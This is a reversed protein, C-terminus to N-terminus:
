YYVRAQINFHQLFQYSLPNSMQLGFNPHLKFTIGDKLANVRVERMEKETSTLPIKLSNFCTFTTPRALGGSENLVFSYKIQRAKRVRPIM